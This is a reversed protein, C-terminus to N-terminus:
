AKCLVTIHCITNFHYHTKSCKCLNCIVNQYTNKNQVASLQLSFYRIFYVHRRAQKRLIKETLLKTVKYRM